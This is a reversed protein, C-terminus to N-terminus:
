LSNREAFAETLKQLADRLGLERVPMAEAEFKSSLWRALHPSLRVDIWVIM